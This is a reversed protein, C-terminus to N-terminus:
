EEDTIFTPTGGDKWLDHQAKRLKPNNDLEDRAAKILDELPKKFNRATTSQAVLAGLLKLNDTGM